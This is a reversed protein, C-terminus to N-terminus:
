FPTLSGMKVNHDWENRPFPRIVEGYWARVSHNDVTEVVIPNKSYEFRAVMGRKVNSSLLSNAEKTLPKAYEILDRSVLFFDAVRQVNREILLIDMSLFADRVLKRVQANDVNGTMDCAWEILLARPIAAENKRFFVNMKAARSEASEFHPLVDLSGLKM